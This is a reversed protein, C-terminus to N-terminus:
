KIVQGKEDVTAEPARKGIRRWVMEMPHFM